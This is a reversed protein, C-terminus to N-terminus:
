PQYLKNGCRCKWLLLYYSDDDGHGSGELSFGKKHRSTVVLTALCPQCNMCKNVCNPPRSGLVTRKRQQLIRNSSSLSGHVSKPHSITILPVIFAVFIAVKLCIPLNRSPAM